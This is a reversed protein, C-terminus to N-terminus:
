VELFFELTYDPISGPAEQIATLTSVVIGFLRDYIVIMTNSFM